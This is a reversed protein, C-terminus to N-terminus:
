NREKKRTMPRLPRASRPGDGCEAAPWWSTVRAHPRAAEDGAVVRLRCVVCDEKQRNFFPVHWDQQKSKFPTIQDTINLVGQYLRSRSDSVRELVGLDSLGVKIRKTKNEARTSGKRVTGHSKRRIRCKRCAAATCPLEFRARPGEDAITLSDVCLPLDPVQHM